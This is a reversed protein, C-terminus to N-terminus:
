DKKSISEQLMSNISEGKMLAEQPSSYWWDTDEIESIIDNPCRYRIVKAPVGGAIAYPPIDKTVVAGAAIVAGNGITVGDMITVRAGIWVDNGISVPSYEKFDLDQAVVQHNFCNDKKYFVPSTSFLTLPHTGLGCILDNSISCYNGITTNQILANRCIYTYNGIKTHNIISGWQILVKEGLISDQSICVGDDLLSSHYKCRLEYGRAKEKTISVIAKCFAFPSYIIRRIYKMHNIVLLM